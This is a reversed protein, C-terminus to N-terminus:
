RIDHIDHFMEMFNQNDSESINTGEKKVNSLLAESMAKQAGAEEIIGQQLKIRDQAEVLQNSLNYCERKKEQLESQLANVQDRLEYIESEQRELDPM